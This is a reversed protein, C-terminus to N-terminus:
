ESLYESEESGSVTDVDEGFLDTPLEQDRGDDFEDFAEFAVERHMAARHGFWEASPAANAAVAALM